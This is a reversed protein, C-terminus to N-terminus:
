SVGIDRSKKLYGTRSRIDGAATSRPDRLPSHSHWPAWPVGHSHLSCCTLVVQAGPKAEKSVSILDIGLSKGSGGTKTAGM